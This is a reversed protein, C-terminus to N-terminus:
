SREGVIFETPADRVGLIVEQAFAPHGRHAACRGARSAHSREARVDRAGQRDEVLTRAGGRLAPTRLPRGPSGIGFLVPAAEGSERTSASASAPSIRPAGTENGAEGARRWATEPVRMSSDSEVNV